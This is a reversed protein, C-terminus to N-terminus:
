GANGAVRADFMFRRRLDDRWKDRGLDIGRVGTVVRRALWTVLCCCGVDYLGLVEKLVLAM